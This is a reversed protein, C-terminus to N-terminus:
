GLGNFSLDLFLKREPDYYFHFFCAGGDDVSVFQRRAYKPPSICFANLFVLKRNNKRQGQYQFTYSSWNHLKAHEASAQGEVFSVLRGRIANRQRSTPTWSGGPVLIWGNSFLMADAEEQSLVRVPVPLESSQEIERQKRLIMAPDDICPDPKCIEAAIVNVSASVCAFWMIAIVARINKM